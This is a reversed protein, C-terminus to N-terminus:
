IKGFGGGRAAREGAGASNFYRSAQSAQSKNISRIKEELRDQEKRMRTVIQPEMRQVQAALAIIRRAADFVPRLEEPLEGWDCRARSAELSLRDDGCLRATENDVRNIEDILQERQAMCYDMGNEIDCTLLAESAKKYREFLTRKREMLELLQKTQGM